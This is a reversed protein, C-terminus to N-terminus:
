KHFEAQQTTEFCLTLLTQEKNEVLFFVPIATAGENKSPHFFTL